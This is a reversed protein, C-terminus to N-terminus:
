RSIRSVLNWHRAGKGLLNNLLLHLGLGDLIHLTSSLAILETVISLNLCHILTTASGVNLVRCKVQVLLTKLLNWTLWTLISLLRDLHLLGGWRTAINRHLL